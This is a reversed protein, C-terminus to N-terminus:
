PHLSVSNKERYTNRYKLCTVVPIVIQITVNQIM